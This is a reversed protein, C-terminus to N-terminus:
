CASFLDQGWDGVEGGAAACKPSARQGLGAGESDSVGSATPSSIASSGSM